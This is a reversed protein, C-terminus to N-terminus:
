NSMENMFTSFIPEILLKKAAPLRLYRILARRISCYADVIAVIFVLIGRVFRWRM